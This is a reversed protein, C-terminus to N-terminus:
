RLVAQAAKHQDLGTVECYRQGDPTQVWFLLMDRDHARNATKIRIEHPELGLKQAILQPLMERRLQASPIM